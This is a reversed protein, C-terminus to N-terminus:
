AGSGRQFGSSGIWIVLSRAWPSAGHLRALSEPTDAAVPKRDVEKRVPTVGTINQM